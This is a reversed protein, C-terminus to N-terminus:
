ESTTISKVIREILLQHRDKKKSRKYQSFSPQINQLARGDNDLFIEIIRNKIELESVEALIGNSKLTLMLHIIQAKSIGGKSRSLKVWKIKNENKEIPKGTFAKEFNELSTKTEIFENETLLEYLLPIKQIYKKNFHVSNAPIDNEFILDKIENDLEEIQIYSSSLTYVKEILQVLSFEIMVYKSTLQSNLCKILVNKLRVFLLLLFHKIEQLNSTRSLLFNQILKLSIEQQSHLLNNLEDNFSIFTGSSGVLREEKTISWLGEPENPPRVNEDFENEILSANGPIISNGMFSSYYREFGSNIFEEFFNIPNEITSPTIRYM